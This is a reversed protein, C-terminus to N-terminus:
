HNCFRKRHHSEDSGSGKALLAFILCGLLTIVKLISGLKVLADVTSVVKLLSELNVALVIVENLCLVADCILGRIVRIHEAKHM